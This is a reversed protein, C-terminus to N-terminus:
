VNVKLSDNEVCCYMRIAADHELGSIRLPYKGPLDPNSM